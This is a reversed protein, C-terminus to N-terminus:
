ASLVICNWHAGFGTVFWAATDGPRVRGEDIADLYNVLNDSSVAHGFRPINRTYIKEPAVGLMQGIIQWSKANVNHPVVLDLADVAGLGAEKAARQMTERVLPFFGAILQDHSAECDWYTGRTTQSMALFRHRESGRSVVAACAADSMLNYVIERNAEAPFRDAAVCLVNNLGPEAALLGRAMRLCGHFTSCALQSVGLAPVNPLGLEMQLRCAPFKFLPLPNPAHNWAYGAPPEVVASTGIGAGFLLLDIKGLDFGSRRVLDEIALRAMDSATQGAPAVRVAEFGLYRLKEATSTARGTAALEDVSHAQEPLYYGLASMGIADAHRM